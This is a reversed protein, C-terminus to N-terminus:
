VKRRERLPVPRQSGGQPDPADGDCKAALHQPEDLQGGAKEEATKVIRAQVSATEKTSRSRRRGTVVFSICSQSVNFCAAIARQQEGAQYRRRIENVQADTLKARPHREGALRQGNNRLIGTAQRRALGRVIGSICPQTVGLSRAVDTQKEGTAVRRLVEDVQRNSLKTWSHREGSYLTGHRRADDSNQKGTGYLLNSLWNHGPKGDWHRGQLGRPRPGVFALLVLQHGGFRHSKGDRYLGYIHYGKPNVYPNLLQWDKGIVYTCGYGTQNRKRKWRSWVTGDAGVRYGPFGPVLKYKVKM